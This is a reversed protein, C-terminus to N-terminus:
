NLSNASYTTTTSQGQSTGRTKANFYDYMSSYKKTQSSALNRGLVDFNDGKIVEVLFNNTDAIGVGRASPIEYSVSAYVKGDIYMYSSIVGGPFTSVINNKRSEGLPEKTDPSYLKKNSIM